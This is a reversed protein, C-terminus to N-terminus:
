GQAQKRSESTRGELESAIFTRAELLTDCFALPNDTDGRRLVIWAGTGGKGTDHWIEFGGITWYHGAALRMANVCNM